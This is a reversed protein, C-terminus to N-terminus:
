RTCIRVVDAVLALRAVAAHRRPPSLRSSENDNTGKPRM